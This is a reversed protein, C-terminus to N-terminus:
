DGCLPLLRLARLRVRLPLVLQRHLRLQARVVRMHLRLAHGDGGLALRDANPQMSARCAPRRRRTARGTARARRREPELRVRATRGDPDFRVIAERQALAAARRGREEAVHVRPDSMGPDGPDSM